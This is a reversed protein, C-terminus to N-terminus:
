LCDDGGQISENQRRLEIVTIAVPFEVLAVIPVWWLLWIAATILYKLLQKPYITWDLALEWMPVIRKTIPDVLENIWSGPPLKMDGLIYMIFALLVILLSGIVELQNVRMRFVPRVHFTAIRCLVCSGVLAMWYLVKWWQFALIVFMAQILLHGTITLLPLDLSDTCYGFLYICSTYWASFHRGLANTYNLSSVDFAVATATALGCMISIACKLPKIDDDSADLLLMDWM